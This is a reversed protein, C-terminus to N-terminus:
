NVKAKIVCNRGAQKAQYLAKDARECLSDADDRQTSIAVGISITVYGVDKGSKNDVLKNAGVKERIHNAVTEADDLTTMPLLVAFEEGGYRCLKDDGRVCGQMMTAVYKLVRDGVSHGYTDNFQKFHDIDILLLCFFRQSDEYVEDLLEDIRQNFARRNGVETLTDTFAKTSLTSLNSKLKDVENNMSDLMNEMSRNSEIISGTEDILNSVLGTVAGLDPADKLQESYHELSGSFAQTDQTLNSIKELLTTVLKQVEKQYSQLSEEPSPNIYTNYLENNIKSTFTSGSALLADIAKKLEPKEGMTYEYWTHYNEPTLPINLQSMRPLTERLLNTSKKLKLNSVVAM